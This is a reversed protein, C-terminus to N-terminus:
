TLQQTFDDPRDDNEYECKTRARVGGRILFRFAGLDHLRELVHHGLKRQDDPLTLLQRQAGFVQHQAVDDLDLEAITHRGIQADNLGAVKLHSFRTKELM